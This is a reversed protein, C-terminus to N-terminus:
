DRVSHWFIHYRSSVIVTLFAWRASALDRLKIVYTLATIGWFLALYWGSWWLIYFDSLLQNELTLHLERVWSISSACKPFDTWILISRGGLYVSYRVRLYVDGAPYFNWPFQSSTMNSATFGSTGETESYRGQNERSLYFYSFNWLNINLGECFWGEALPGDNWPTYPGIRHASNLPPMWKGM